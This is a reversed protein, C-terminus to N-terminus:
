LCNFNGWQIELFIELSLTKDYDFYQPSNVVVSFSKTNQSTKCFLINIKKVL